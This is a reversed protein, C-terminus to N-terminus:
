KIWEVDGNLKDFMRFAASRMMEYEDDSMEPLVWNDWDNVIWGSVGDEVMEPLGGFNSVIVPTGCSYAELILMPMNEEWKSPVILYQLTCLISLLDSKKMFPVCEVNEWDERHVTTILKLRSNVQLFSELSEIGKEISDRGFFGVQNKKWKLKEHSKFENSLYNRRIAGNGGKARFIKLFYESVFVDNVTSFRRAIKYVKKDLYLFASKFFSNGCNNYLILDKQLSCKDCIENNYFRNRQSCVGFFDHHILHKEVGPFSLLALWSIRGSLTHFVVKEPKYKINYIFLELFVFVNFLRIFGFSLPSCKLTRVYPLDSHGKIGIFTAEISLDENLRRAMEIAARDDGGFVSINNNIILVGM